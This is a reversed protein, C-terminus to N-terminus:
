VAEADFLDMVTKIVPEIEIDDSLSPPMTVASGTSHRDERHKEAELSIHLEMPRGAFTNLKEALLDRNQKKTAEAFQFSCQPPFRIDISNGTVAAISAMSLFSGLNPRDKMVLATYDHWLTVPDLHPIEAPKEQIEFSEPINSAPISIAPNEEESEIKTPEPPEEKVLSPQPLVASDIPDNKKKIDPNSNQTDAKTLLPAVPIGTKISSLLEEISVTRDMYAIKLLAIEVLFRPYTSWRMDSQTRHLIETMRMLDGESFRNSQEVLKKLIDPGPNRNESDLTGPIRAFLLNRVHEELGTLFEELDYGKQLVDEVASVVLEPKKDAVANLLATYIESEVLGLVSRVEKEDIKAGCFSYVQDLLSLSDRMSGDAKRAILLLAQREFGIKECTCIKELQKLIRETSIRRFDFRQCRSLITDPIKRPETTAFIFIVNKPPEELTKLLANFAPKSLMHVEDIVYIRYKGGMSSYNINERLDRIDDVSNNSAGDIEQVDFSSGSIISKCTDCEGCPSPTPGKECNMARSLIRAVTTKGVGRTGSFVFAHAVRNKEIAKKITDTVHEQGAVDDFNMPRWKRALVLYSM